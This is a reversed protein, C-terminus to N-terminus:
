FDKDRRVGAIIENLHGRTSVSKKGVEGGLDFDLLTVSGDKKVVINGWCM